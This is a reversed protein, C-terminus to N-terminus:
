FFYRQNDDNKMVASVYGAVLVLDKPSLAKGSNILKNADLFTKDQGITRHLARIQRWSDVIEKQKSPDAKGPPAAVIGDCLTQLKKFAPKMKPAPAAPETAREPAPTSPRPPASAPHTTMSTPPSSNPKKETGHAIGRRPCKTADSALEALANNICQKAEQRSLARHPVPSRGINKLYLPSPAKQVGNSAGMHNATPRPHVPPRNNVSMKLFEM